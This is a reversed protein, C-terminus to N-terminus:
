LYHSSILYTWFNYGIQFYWFAPKSCIAPLSRRRLICLCIYQVYICGSQNFYVPETCTWTEVDCWHSISLTFFFFPLAGLSFVKHANLFHRRHSVWWLVSRLVGAASSLMWQFLSESYPCALVSNSNDKWTPFLFAPCSVRRLWEAHVPFSRVNM